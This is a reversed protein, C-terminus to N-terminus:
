LSISLCTSHLQSDCREVFYYWLLVNVDEKSYYRCDKCLPVELLRRIVSLLQKIVRNRNEVETTNFYRSDINYKVMLQTIDPICAKM